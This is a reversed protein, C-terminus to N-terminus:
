YPVQPIHLICTTHLTVNGNAKWTESVAYVKKDPYNIDFVTAELIDAARM